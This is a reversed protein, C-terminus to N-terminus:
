ERFAIVADGSVVPVPWARFHMWGRVGLALIVQAAGAACVGNWKWRTWGWAALASYVTNLRSRAEPVLAWALSVPM